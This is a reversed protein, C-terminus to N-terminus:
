SFKKFDLWQNLSNNYVTSLLSLDQFCGWNHTKKISSKSTSPIQTDEM